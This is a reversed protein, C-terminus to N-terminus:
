RQPCIRPSIFFAHAIPSLSSRFFSASRSGRIIRIQARARFGSEMVDSTHEKVTDLAYTIIRHLHARFSGMEVCGCTSQVLVLSVFEEPVFCEMVYTFAYCQREWDKYRSKATAQVVWRRMKHVSTVVFRGSVLSWM